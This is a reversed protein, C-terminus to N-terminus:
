CRAAEMLSPMVQCGFVWGEKVVCAHKAQPSTLSIKESEQRWGGLFSSLERGGSKRPCQGGLPLAPWPIFWYSVWKYIQLHLQVNTSFTVLRMESKFHAKMPDCHM